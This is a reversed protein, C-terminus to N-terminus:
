GVIAVISSMELSIDSTALVTFSKVTTFLETNYYALTNTLATLSGLHKSNFYLKNPYAGAKFTFLLSLNWHCLCALKNCSPILLPRLIPVM